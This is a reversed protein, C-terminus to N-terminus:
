FHAWNKKARKMIKILRVIVNNLSFTRIELLHILPKIDLKILFDQVSEVGCLHHLTRAYSEPSWLKPPQLRFAWISHGLRGAVKSSYRIVLLESYKSIILKEHLDWSFAPAHYYSYTKLFTKLWHHAFTSSSHNNFNMYESFAVFTQSIKVKSKVPM